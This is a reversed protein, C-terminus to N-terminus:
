TTHLKNRQKIGERIKDVGKQGLGKVKLLEEDKKDELQSLTKIGEEKLKALVTDSLGIQDLEEGGKKEKMKEPIKARTQVTKVKGDKPRKKMGREVADAIFTVLLNISKLADDNGPIAITVLNPDSNTDCVAIIPIDKQRTEKIAIAERKVDLVFLLGPIETLNRIGGVLKERRELDKNFVSLAKKTMKETEGEEKMKLMKNYRSITNKVSHFNSILGGPWRNNVYMAGCRKAEREVIERAQRKTGVFIIEKGGAVEKEVYQSAKELADLTQTLDIIHVGNRATYIFSKMKPNWRKVQHGFHVGASLLKELNLDM